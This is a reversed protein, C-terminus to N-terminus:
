KVAERFAPSEGSLGGVTSDRFKNPSVSGINAKDDEEAEPSLFRVRGASKSVSRRGRRNPTKSPTRPDKGPTRGLGEARSGRVAKMTENM